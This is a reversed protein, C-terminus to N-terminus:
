DIPDAPRFRAQAALRVGANPAGYGNYGADRQLFEFFFRRDVARSYMQHFRNGALDEDYLLHAQEMAALQAEDFGFRAGLDEYYNAPIELLAAGRERLAASSAALDDSALAVHQFGGAMGRALFRSSLTERADSANITVRFAGDASQLAQSHVLGSPDIVDQESLAELGFLARWYLQWSLFEDHHVVSALHDVRQVAQASSGEGASPFERHWLAEADDDAILYLLTGGVGRLAPMALRGPRGEPKYHRIGLATARDLVAQVNAVRLGIACISTGFVTRYTKAFGKPEANVVLNVGGQQWRTVKKNRHKGAKAFGLSAFTEKLTEAEEGEATFEIFETGLVPQPAPMSTPQDLRTLAADRVYDLSRYGDAAVLAPSSSRFRDNFIELSLPGKYGSRLIEAVFGAVDLGGQGPLNRFHRSWYLLDMELLPADALQVYTIKDGPIDAISANPIRRSLSHFSDLIIGISPHDVAKVVEWADRHDYIHRGWALAEYGVLIGRKAAREGLEAFDDIIRQREGLSHPQCNSCVLIRNTNLEGMLDFKREARDFARARLAGPMGEFDRFPQYLDCTLGLDELLKRVETPSLSSGILDAEFIEVGPFGAGAAAVLKEQLTGKLSVTAIANSSM